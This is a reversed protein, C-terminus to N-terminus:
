HEFLRFFESHIAVAGYRSLHHADVYLPTDYLVLRYYGTEQDLLAHSIDVFRCGEEMLSQKLANMGANREAVTRPDATRKLFDAGFVEARILMKPVDGLHNPVEELVWVECGYARLEKITAVLRIRFEDDIGGVVVSHM